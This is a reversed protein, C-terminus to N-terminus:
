WRCRSQILCLVTRKHYHCFMYSKAEMNQILIPYSPLLLRNKLHNSLLLLPTILLAKTLGMCLGQIYEEETLKDPESLPTLLRTMETPRVHLRRKMQKINSEIAKLPPIIM